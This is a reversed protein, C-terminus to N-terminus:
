RAQRERAKEEQEVSRPGGQKRLQLPLPQFPVVHPTDSPQPPVHSQTDGNLQM